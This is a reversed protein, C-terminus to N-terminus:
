SSLFSFLFLFLTFYPSINYTLFWNTTPLVTLSLSPGCAFQKTENMYRMSNQILKICTPIAALQSLNITDTCLYWPNGNKQTQSKISNHLSPRSKSPYTPTSQNNSYSNITLPDFNEPNLHIRAETRQLTSPEFPFMYPSMM